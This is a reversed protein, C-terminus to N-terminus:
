TVGQLFAKSIDTSVIPWKRNAAERVLLRQSYRQSTGAYRELGAADIDKFGRITLRARIIRRTSGDPLVEHKWKIVWKCDVINRATAKKERCFCEYKLWTKLEALIAAAVEERHKEIEERTLLDTDREVVTKKNVLLHQHVIAYSHEYPQQQGAEDCGQMATDAEAQAFKVM